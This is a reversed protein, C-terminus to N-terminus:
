GDDGTDFYSPRPPSLFICSHALSSMDLGNVSLVFQYQSRIAQDRRPMISRLPEPLHSLQISASIPRM